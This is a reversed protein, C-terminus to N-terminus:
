GGTGTVGWGATLVKDGIKPNETALRIPQLPAGMGYDPHEEVKHKMLIVALDSTIGASYFFRQM